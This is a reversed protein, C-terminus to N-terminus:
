RNVGVRRGRLGFVTCSEGGLLKMNDVNCFAGCDSRTKVSSSKRTSANAACHERTGSRAPGGDDDSGDNRTCITRSACRPRM